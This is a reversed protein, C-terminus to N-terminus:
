WIKKTVIAKTDKQNICYKAYRKKLEDKFPKNITAAIPQFFRKLGGPIM